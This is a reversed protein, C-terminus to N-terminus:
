GTITVDNTIEGSWTLTFTVNQMPDSNTNGINQHEYDKDLWIWLYYNQSGTANIGINNLILVNDLLKGSTATFVGSAGTIADTTCNADSTTLAYHLHSLDETSPTGNQATFNSLTLTANVRAGNTTNNEYNLTLPLKAVHEGATCASVPALDTINTAEGGIMTANLQGKLADESVTFSVGTQQETGTIWTWYAFTAGGVIVVIAVVAVIALILKNRDKM